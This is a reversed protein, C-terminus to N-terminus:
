RSKSYFIALALPKSRVAYIASAVSLGALEMLQDVSFGPTSMLDTDLDIAEQQKLYSVTAM